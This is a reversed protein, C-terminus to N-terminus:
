SGGVGGLFSPGAGPNPGVGERRKRVANNVLDVFARYIGYPWAIPEGYQRELEEYTSTQGSEWIRNAGPFVLPNGGIDGPRRIFDADEDPLGSPSGAQEMTAISAALYDNELDAKELARDRMALDYARDVGARESDTQGARAARSFNQGANHLDRGVSSGTHFPSFSAVNAGLAALPSVGAELADNVRWRVGKQAFERQYREGALQNRRNVGADYLGGGLGLLGGAFDVVPNLKRIGKLVSDFLGM